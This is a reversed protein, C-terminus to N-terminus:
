DQMGPEDMFKLALFQASTMQAAVQEEFAQALVLRFNEPTNVAAAEQIGEQAALKDAVGGFFRTFDSEAFETGFRDNLSSVIQSLPALDPTAAPSSGSFMTSVVGHADPDLSISGESTKEGSHGGAAYPVVAIQVHQWSSAEVLHM